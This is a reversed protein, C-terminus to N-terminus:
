YAEGDQVIVEGPGIGLRSDVRGEPVFKQINPVMRKALGDERIPRATQNDMANYQRNLLQEEPSLQSMERERLLRRIAEQMGQGYAQKAIEKTAVQNQLQDYAQAKAAQQAQMQLNEIYGM